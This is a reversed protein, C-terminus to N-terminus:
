GDSRCSGRGPEAAAQACLRGPDRSSKVYNRVRPKFSDLQERTTPESDTGEADSQRAVVCQGAIM